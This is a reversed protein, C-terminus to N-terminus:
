NILMSDAPSNIGATAIDITQVNVSRRKYFSLETQNSTEKTNKNIIGFSHYRDRFNSGNSQRKDLLPSIIESNQGVMNPLKIEQSEESIDSESLM